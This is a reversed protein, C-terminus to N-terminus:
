KCNFILIARIPKIAKNGFDYTINHTRSMQGKTVGLPREALFTQNNWVGSMSLLLQVM